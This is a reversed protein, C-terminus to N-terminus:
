NEYKKEGIKLIKSDEQLNRKIEKFYNEFQEQTIKKILKETASDLIEVKKDIVFDILIRYAELNKGSENINILVNYVYIAELPTMISTNIPGWVNKINCTISKLFRQELEKVYALKKNIRIIQNKRRKKFNELEIQLLPKIDFTSIKGLATNEIQQEIKKKLEEKELQSIYKKTKPNCKSKISNKLEILRCIINIEKYIELDFNSKEIVEPLYENLCIEGNIFIKKRILIKREKKFNKESLKTKLKKKSKKIIEDIIEIVAGYFISEINELIKFQNQLKSYGHMKITEIKSLNHIAKVTQEDLASYLEKFNEVDIKRYNVVKKNNIEVSNLIGACIQEIKEKLERIQQERPKTDKTKTYQKKM